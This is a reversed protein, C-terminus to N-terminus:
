RSEIRTNTYKSILFNVISACIVLMFHADAEDISLISDYFSHRVGKEDSTWGYLKLISERFAPHMRHIKDISQVAEALTAKESGSIIKAASEVASIAEKIANRYDPDLKKSFLKYASLLHERAGSFYDRILLVSSVTEIEFSDSISVLIDGIFRYGSREKELISNALEKGNVSHFNILIFELFDYVEYWKFNDYMILLESRCLSNTAPTDDIKLSLFESWIKVYIGRRNIDDQGTRAPSLPLFEQILNWISNRLSADMDGIQLFNTVEKAGVRESFKM